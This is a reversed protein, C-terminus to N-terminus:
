DESDPWTHDVHFTSSSEMLDLDGGLRSQEGGPLQVRIGVRGPRRRPRSLRARVRTAHGKRGRKSGSVPSSDRPWTLRHHAPGGRRGQQDCVGVVIAWWLRGSGAEGLECGRPPRTPPRAQPVAVQGAVARAPGHRVGTGRRATRAGPQGGVDDHVRQPGWGVPQGCPCVSWGDKEIKDAVRDLIQATEDLVAAPIPAFENDLDAIASGIECILDIAHQATRSDGNTTAYKAAQALAM